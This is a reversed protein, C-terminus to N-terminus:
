IHVKVKKVFLIEENSNFHSITRPNYTVIKKKRKPKIKRNFSNFYKFYYDNKNVLFILSVVIRNSSLWITSKKLKFLLSKYTSQNFNIYSERKVFVTNINKINSKSM